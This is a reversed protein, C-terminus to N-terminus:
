FLNYENNHYARGLHKYAAETAVRGRQTRLLYGEQILYPEYVEELTAAKESVATSVTGVGVPGGKFKDIITTLIMIDMEDLGKKDVKLADLALHTIPMDIKGSGKIQAFDRVRRLLANAIRPTGRSRGAIEGAAAFEIPVDLIGASRDVIKTLLETDYYKLRSNIGFRARLPATLLGSRTTAGILTFPNLNLQVSRANPGSEILIDIKFDEMASYLYEEVVPSLRHIEDIFLVDREGLNTLLGALDGPKDLVPGSTIKVNVGLENAIISALTTKGLGPPGHLLVHDLAEDRQNAATVFVELNAVVEQQGSFDDFAAPRLKIEFTNEEDEINDSSSDLHENM